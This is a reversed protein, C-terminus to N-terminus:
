DNLAMAHLQTAWKARVAADILLNELLMTRVIVTPLFSVHALGDERGVWGGLLKCPADGRSEMLNLQNVLDVVASEEIHQPLRLLWFAASGVEPHPQDTFAQSLATNRPAGVWDFLHNSVCVVALRGRCRASVFEQVYQDKLDVM